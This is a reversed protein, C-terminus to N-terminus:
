PADAFAPATNANVYGFVQYTTASTGVFTVDCGGVVNLTLKSNSSGNSYVMAIVDTDTDLFTVGGVYYLTTTGTTIVHNSADAAGGAYVFRYSVGAVPTPLTITIAQSADPIFNINGSNTAATITIAATDALTVPATGVNEIVTIEGTTSSKAVTQFGNESRVPGSFTTSSM